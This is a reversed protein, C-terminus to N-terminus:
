REHGARSLIMGQEIVLHIAHVCTEPMQRAENEAVEAAVAVGAAPQEGAGHVEWGWNGWAGHNWAEWDWTGWEGHNWSSSSGRSPASDSWQGWSARAWSQSM